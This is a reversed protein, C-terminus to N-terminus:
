KRGPWTATITTPSTVTFVSCAQGGINVKSAASFGTGTLVVSSYVPGSVPHVSAVHPAGSGTATVQSTYSPGTGKAAGGSGCSALSVVLILSGGVLIALKAKTKM